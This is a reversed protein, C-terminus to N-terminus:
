EGKLKWLFNLEPDGGNGSHYIGNGGVYKWLYMNCINGVDDIQNTIVEVIEIEIGETASHCGEIIDGVKYM